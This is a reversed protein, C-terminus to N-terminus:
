ALSYSVSVEVREVVNSWGPFRARAIVGIRDRSTLQTVFGDGTGAGTDSELAVTGADWTIVHERFERDACFNRQVMWRSGGEPGGGAVELKTDYWIKPDLKVPVDEALAIWPDANPAQSPRFIAAEFWSHGAYTGRLGEESCWGQDHSYTKFEVRAIRLHIEEEKHTCGDLIPPTLLYCLSANNNTARAAAVNAHQARISEQQLRLRTLGDLGRLLLRPPHTGRVCRTMNDRLRVGQFM